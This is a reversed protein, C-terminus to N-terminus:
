SCVDSEQWTNGEYDIRYAHNTYGAFIGLGGKVNSFIEVPNTFIPDPTFHYMDQVLVTRDFLIWEESMGSVVLMFYPQEVSIHNSTFAIDIERESNEFLRDSLVADFYDLGTSTYGIPEDLEDSGYFLAPDSSKYQLVEYIPKNKPSDAQRQFKCTGSFQFLTVRYYSKGPLDQIRFRIRFSPVITTETNLSEISVFASNLPPAHSTAEATGLEPHTAKIFYNEGIEPFQNSTTRYRGEGTHELRESSGLENTITVVANELFLDKAVSNEELAISRSIRVYWLSDPTFVGNIVIQPTYEEPELPFQCASLFVLCLIFYRMHVRLFKVPVVALSDM